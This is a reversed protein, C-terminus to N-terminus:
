PKAPRCLTRLKLDQVPLSLTRRLDTADDLDCDGPFGTGPGAVNCKQPATVVATNGLANERILDVDTQNVRGDDNVDGCQCANGIGDPTAGVPDSSTAITGTDAQNPNATYICDDISDCVGDGDADGDPCAAGGGPGQTTGQFTMQTFDPISIDDELGGQPELRYGRAFFRTTTPAFRSRFSFGTQVAGPQV